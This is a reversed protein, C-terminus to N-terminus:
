PRGARVVERDTVVVDVREDEPGHPVESVLQESYAVALARVPVASARRLMRLFRDYYGRGRGLRNLARDFAVGPTIVVVPAGLRRPDFVPLDAVPERMGYAHTSLGRDFRTVRHFTLDGGAIRPLWLARSSGAIQELLPLIMVEELLPYFGLVDVSEAWADEAALLELVQASRRRKDEDSLARLTSTVARRLLAKEDAPVAV